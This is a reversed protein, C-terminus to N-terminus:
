GTTVEVPILSRYKEPVHPLLFAFLAPDKEKTVWCHRVDNGDRLVYQIRDTQPRLVFLKDVYVPTAM